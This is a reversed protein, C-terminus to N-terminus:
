IYYRFPLPPVKEDKATILVDGIADAFRMTVPMGDGYICSNFNMKTLMLIDNMVLDISPRVGSDNVIEIRLPNPTERGPYTGLKEVYGSTWLLGIRSSM